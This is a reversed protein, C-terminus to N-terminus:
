ICMYIYICIIYIYVDHANHMFHLCVTHMIHDKGDNVVYKGLNRPFSSAMLGAEM